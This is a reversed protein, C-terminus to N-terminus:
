ACGWNREDFYRMGTWVLQVHRFQPEHLKGDHREKTLWRLFYAINGFGGAACTSGVKPVYDVFTEDENAYFDWNPGDEMIYHLNFHSLYEERTMGCPYKESM